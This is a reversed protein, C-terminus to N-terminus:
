LHLQQLLQSAAPAFRAHIGFLQCFASYGKSDAFDELILSIKHL